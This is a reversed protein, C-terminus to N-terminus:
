PHWLFKALDVKGHGDFVVGEDELLQRQMIGDFSPRPSIEGQRNIVRYWPLDFKTSSSHLIWAVQRAGRSNGAQAAIRGYTLVKGEPISKIIAVVRATFLTTM